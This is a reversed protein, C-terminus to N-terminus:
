ELDLHLQAEQAYRAEKEKILRPKRAAPVPQKNPNRYVCEGGEQIYWLPIKPNNPEKGKQDIQFEWYRFLDELATPPVYWIEWLDSHEYIGFYWAKVKRYKNLIDKNLHHHTSVQNTLAYNITKLEYEGGEQDVADNGERGPLTKLGLLILLQVVKGGNDQFIDPIGYERALQKLDEAKELAIQMRAIERNREIASTIPKEVPQPLPSPPIPAPLPEENEQGALTVEVLHSLSVDLAQSITLLLELSPAREGREIFSIHETTKDVLEALKEQKIKKAKHITRIRDGLLALFKNYDMFGGCAALFQFSVEFVIM